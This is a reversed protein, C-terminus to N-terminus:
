QCRFNMIKNVVASLKEKDQALFTWKVETWRMYIYINNGDISLEELNDREKLNEDKFDMHFKIRVCVSTM